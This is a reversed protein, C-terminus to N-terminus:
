VPPEDQFVVSQGLMETLEEVSVDKKLPTINVVRTKFGPDSYQVVQDSAAETSAAEVVTYFTLYVPPHDAGDETTRGVAATHKVLYKKPTKATKAM